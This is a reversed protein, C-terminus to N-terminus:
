RHWSGKYECLVWRSYESALYKRAGSGSDFRVSALWRNIPICIFNSPVAERKEAPSFKISRMILALVLFKFM